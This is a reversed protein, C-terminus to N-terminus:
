DMKWFRGFLGIYVSKHVPVAIAKSGAATSENELQRVTYHSVNFRSYIVNNQEDIVPPAVPSANESRYFQKFKELGPKTMWAVIIALAIFIFVLHRFKM